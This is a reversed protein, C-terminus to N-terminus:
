VSLAALKALPRFTQKVGLVVKVLRSSLPLKQLSRVWHRFYIKPLPMLVPSNHINRSSSSSHFMTALQMALVEPVEAAVVATVVAEVTVAVVVAAVVTVAEVVAVVVTVAEM